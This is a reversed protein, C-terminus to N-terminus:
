LNMFALVSTGTTHQVSARRCCADLGSQLHEIFQPLTRSAAAYAEQFGADSKSIAMFLPETQEEAFKSSTSEAMHTRRKVMSSGPPRAQLPMSLLRRAFAPSTRQPIRDPTRRGAPLSASSKM